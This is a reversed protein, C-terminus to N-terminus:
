RDIIQILEDYRSDINVDTFNKEAHVFANRSIVGLKQPNSLSECLIRTLSAVSGSPVLFGTIGNKILHRIGPVDYAIVVCGCAMAEMVLKSCGERFSPVLIIKTALLVEVINDVHGHYNIGLRIIEREFFGQDVATPNQKDFGGYISVRVKSTSSESQALEIAKLFDSIGKDVVLRGVFSVDAMRSQVPFKLLRDYKVHDIVAGGLNIVSKSSSGRDLLSKVFEEDDPNQVAFASFSSGFIVRFLGKVFFKVMIRTLNIATSLRDNPCQTFGFGFGSIFLLAKGNRFVSAISFLFGLKISVIITYDPNLNSIHNRVAFLTKIDSLPAIGRNFNQDVCQVGLKQFYHASDEDVKGICVVRFGQGLLHNILHSRHSKIFLMSSAIIVIKKL